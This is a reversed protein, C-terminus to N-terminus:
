APVVIDAGGVARVQCGCPGCDGDGVLEVEGGGVGGRERGGVGCRERGRERCGDGEGGDM